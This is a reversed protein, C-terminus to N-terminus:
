PVAPKKGAAVADIVQRLSWNRWDRPFEKALKAAYANAQALQGLRASLDGIQVYMDARITESLPLHESLKGAAVLHALADTEPREYYLTADALMLHLDRANVPEAQPLMAEVAALRAAANDAPLVYLTLVALKMLALQGWYNTGHERILARYGAAAADFDPEERFAQAMRAEFYKAALAFEDDGTALEHLTARARALNDPLVPQVSLLSLAAGLRVERTDGGPQKLVREFEHHAENAFYRASDRWAKIAISPAAPKAVDGADASQAAEAGRAVVGALLVAGIIIYRATRM